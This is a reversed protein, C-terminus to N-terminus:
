VTETTKEERHPVGGLLLETIRRPAETLFAFGALRGPRLVHRRDKEIADAIAAALNEATTEPLLMMKDFRRRAHVVPAYEMINGLMETPVFGVQVNTVGVSLGRLDARLGASFHSVAAKTSSYAALGPFVGIAAVSAMNVIRGSNREVMGPLVQRSLEMGALVNLEVLRRLGDATLDWFLGSEDMGANNVLIDVPGGQEEARAIVTELQGRDLLDASLVNAGGLEDALEELKAQDRALLTLKAGRRHLERAITAGIGRSAGTVLAHSDALKM